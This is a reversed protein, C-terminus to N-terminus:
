GIPRTIQRTRDKDAQQIIEALFAELDRDRGGFESIRCEYVSNATRILLTDADAAATMIESTEIYSGDPYYESDTIYGCLKNNRVVWDQIRM